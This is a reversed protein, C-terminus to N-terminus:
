ARCVLNGSERQQFLEELGADSEMRQVAETLFPDIDAESRIQEVSYVKIPIPGAAEVLDPVELWADALQRSVELQSRYVLEEAHFWPVALAGALIAVVATGFLLQVKNALSLGTAM